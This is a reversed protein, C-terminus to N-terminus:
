GHLPFGLGQQYYPYEADEEWVYRAVKVASRKGYYIYTM